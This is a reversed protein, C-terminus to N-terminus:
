LWIQGQAYVCFKYGEQCKNLHLFDASNILENKLYLLTGIVRFAVGMNSWKWGIVILTVELKRSYANTHILM